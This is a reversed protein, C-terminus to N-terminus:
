VVLSDAPAFADAVARAGAAEIGVTLTLPLTSIDTEATATEPETGDTDTVPDDLAVTVGDAMEAVAETGLADTVVPDFASAWGVARM